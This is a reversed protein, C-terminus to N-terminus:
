AIAQLSRSTLRFGVPRWGGKRVILTFLVASALLCVGISVSSAEPGFAGGTLLTPGHLTARVLSHPATHVSVAADYLNGEAFNMMAMLVICLEAWHSMRAALSTDAGPARRLPSHPAAIM